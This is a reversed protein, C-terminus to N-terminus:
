GEAMLREMKENEIDYPHFEAKGNVKMAAKIEANISAAIEASVPIYQEKPQGVFNFAIVPKGSVTDLRKANVKAGDITMKYTMSKGSM